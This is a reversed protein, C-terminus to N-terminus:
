WWGRTPLQQGGRRGVRQMRGLLCEAQARGSAVSLLVEGGWCLGRDGGEWDGEGALEEFPGFVLGRVEGCGGPKDASRGLRCGSSVLVQWRDAPM